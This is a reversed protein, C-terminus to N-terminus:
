QEVGAKGVPGQALRTRLSCVAIRLRALSSRGRGRDSRGECEEQGDQKGKRGSGIESAVAAEDFAHGYRRVSAADEGGAEVVRQDQPVEPRLGVERMEDLVFSSRFLTTYPFLTDTRTSRPPRRIM